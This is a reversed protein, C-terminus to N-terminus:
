RLAEKASEIAVDLDYRDSVSIILDVNREATYLLASFADRLRQIEEATSEAIAGMAALAVRLDAIERELKQAFEKKVVPHTTDWGCDITAADTRPTDSPNLGLSQAIRQGNMMAHHDDDCNM